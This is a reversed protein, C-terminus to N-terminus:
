QCKTHVFGSGNEEYEAKSLWWKQFETFTALISGGTWACYRREARGAAAIVRVKSHLVLLERTLREYLGDFNSTGGTLCIGVYMDKHMQSDCSQIVDRIMGPLGKSMSPPLGSQKLVGSDNSVPSLLLESFLAEPVKQRELGMEILTGDPLEYKETPQLVPEVSPMDNVKCLAEKSQELLATQRYRKYSDTTGPFSLDTIEYKRTSAEEDNSGTEEEEEEEEVPEDVRTKKVSYEPKIEIGKETIQEKFKANLQEGGTMTRLTKNKVLSGEFVPVATTSCAGCDLVVATTRNNAFASLVASRGLYVAPSQYKEFLLECMKERLHKPNYCPEALMFAFDETEVNTVSYDILKEMDNWNQILGDQDFPSVVELGDRRTDLGGGCIYDKKGNTEKVGLRSPFINHPIDEGAYGIKSTHSGFDAVIAPVTNEVTYM